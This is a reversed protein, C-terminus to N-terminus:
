DGDGSAYTIAIGLLSAMDGKFFRIHNQLQTHLNDIPQPATTIQESFRPTDSLPNLANKILALQAETAAILANGGEVAQLYEYFGIGDQGDNSRGYWIDEIADFHAKLMEVSRGSYYAEVRAPETTVQGPRLGLPLAVKFNKISEFSKVWENYLASVSSGADTGANSVFENRYTSWASVVADVRSKVNEAAGKLYNRYNANQLSELVPTTSNVKGFLLYEVALFGRADRNFDTFNSTGNTIAGDIKSESVPFTGIEEILSKTLGAEGAPGFNYANAYQWSIYADKWANRAAALNAESVTTTLTNVAANLANVRTQLDNYAPIILNDAYNELMAARNFSDDPGDGNDCSIFFAASLVIMSLVVLGFTIKKM